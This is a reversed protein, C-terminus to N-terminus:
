SLRKLLRHKSQRLAESSVQTEDPFIRRTEEAALRASKGREQKETYLKDRGLNGKERFPNIGPLGDKLAKIKHWPKPEIIEKLRTNAFILVRIETKLRLFRHRGTPLPAWLKGFFRKRWRRVTGWARKVQPITTNKFIILYLRPRRCPNEVHPHASQGATMLLEPKGYLVYGAFQHWSANTLGSTRQLLRADALTIQSQYDAFNDAASSWKPGGKTKLRDRQKEMSLTRRPTIKYRKRLEQVAIQFPKKRLILSLEQERVAHPIM